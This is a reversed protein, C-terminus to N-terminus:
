PKLSLNDSKRWTSSKSNFCRSEVLRTLDYSMGLAQGCWVLHIKNAAIIQQKKTDGRRNDRKM